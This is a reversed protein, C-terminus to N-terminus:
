ECLIYLPLGESLIERMSLNNGEVLPLMSIMRVQRLPQTLDLFWGDQAGLAPYSDKGSTDLQSRFAVKATIM